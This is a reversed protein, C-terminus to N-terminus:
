CTTRSGFRISAPARWSRSCWRRRRPPTRGTSPVAGCADSWGGPGGGPRRPRNPERRTGRLGPGSRPRLGRRGWGGACRRTGWRSRSSGARWWRRCRGANAPRRRPRRRGRSGGAIRRAGAVLGACGLIAAEAAVSATCRVDDAAAGAMVVLEGAEYGRRGDPLTHRLRDPPAELVITAVEGAALAVRRFQTLPLVPRVVSLKRM